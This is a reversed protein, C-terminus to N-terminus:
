IKVMFKLGNEPNHEVIDKSSCFSKQKAWHSKGEREEGQIGMAAVRFIILEPPKGLGGSSIQPPLSTRHCM